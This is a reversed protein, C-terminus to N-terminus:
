KGEEKALREVVVLHAPLSLDKLGLQALKERIQLRGDRVVGRALFVRVGNWLLSLQVPGDAELGQWNVHLTGNADFHAVAQAPSGRRGQRLWDGLRERLVGTWAGLVEESTKEGTCVRMATELAGRCWSCGEVHARQGPELLDEPRVKRECAREVCDVLEAISLCDKTRRSDEAPAVELCREFWQRLANGVVDGEM